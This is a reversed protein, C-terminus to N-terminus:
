LGEDMSGGSSLNWYLLVMISMVAFGVGVEVLFIGFSRWEIPGLPVLIERLDDIAAHFLSDPLEWFIDIDSYPDSTGLALSGRLGASSGSVADELARTVADALSRRISPDLNVAARAEPQRARFEWGRACGTSSDTCM